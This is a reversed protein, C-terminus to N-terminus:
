TRVAAFCPVRGRACAPRRRHTRACSAPASRAARRDARWARPPRRARAAAVPRFPDVLSRAHVGPRRRDRWAARDIFTRVDRAGMGWAGPGLQVVLTTTSVTARDRTPRRATPFSSCTRRVLVTAIYCYVTAAHLAQRRGALRLQCMGTRTRVYYVSGLAVYALMCPSTSAHSPEITRPARRVHM